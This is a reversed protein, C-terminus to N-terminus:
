PLPLQIVFPTIQLNINSNIFTETCRRSCTLVVKTFGNITQTFASMWDFTWNITTM